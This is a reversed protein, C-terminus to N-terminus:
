RAGSGALSPFAPSARHGNVPQDQQRPVTRFPLYLVTIHKGHRTYGGERAGRRRRLGVWQGSRASCTICYKTTMWGAQDVDARFARAADRLPAVRRARRVPAPSPPCFARPWSSGLLAHLRGKALPRTMKPGNGTTTRLSMSAVECRLLPLRRTRASCAGTRTKTRM